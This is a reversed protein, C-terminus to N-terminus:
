KKGQQRKAELAKKAPELSKLPVEHLSAVQLWKLFGPMDAGVEAALAALEQAQEETITKLHEVRSEDDEGTEISLMKLIAAKTAYTVAKGPAKDGNDMAHAHVRVAERDNKPDDINVFWINYEGEYLRMSNPVQSNGDKSAKMTQPGMCGSLQEPFTLVGFEIMHTRTMAVVLDHTVAKYTDVSKDKKIYEVKKRVENLRQHLNM